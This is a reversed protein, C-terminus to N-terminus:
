FKCRECDLVDDMADSCVSRFRFELLRSGSFPRAVKIAIKAITAKTIIANLM